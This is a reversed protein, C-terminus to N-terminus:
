VAIWCIFQPSRVERRREADRLVPDAEDRGVDAAAEAPLPGDLGVEGERGHRGAECPPRDLERQLPRHHEIGGDVSRGRELADPDARGPVAPDRGDARCGTPCGGPRACRAPSGTCGAARRRPRGCSGGAARRGRSASPLAIRAGPSAGPMIASSTAMSSIASFSPSSGTANRTRLSVWTSGSRGSMGNEVRGKTSHRRVPASRKPQSRRTALGALTRSPRQNIPMPM